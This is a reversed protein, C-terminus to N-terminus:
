IRKVISYSLFVIALLFTIVLWTFDSLIKGQVLGVVGTEGLLIFTMSQKSLLFFLLCRLNSQIQPKRTHAITNFLQGMESNRVCQISKDSGYLYMSMVDSGICM